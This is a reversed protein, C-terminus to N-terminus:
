GTRFPIESLIRDTELTVDNLCSAKFHGFHLNSKGSSTFERCHKWAQKFELPSITKCIPQCQQVELPTHLYTALSAIHPHLREDRIGKLIGESTTTNGTWGLLDIQSRQMSPTHSAQTYRRINEEMCGKEIEERTTQLEWKGSPTQTEIAMVGAGRKKFIYKLKRSQEQQRERTILQKLIGASPQQGQGSKLIALDQLYTRRHSESNLKIANYTKYETKLANEADDFSFVKTQLNTTKFLKQLSRSNIRHNKFDALV